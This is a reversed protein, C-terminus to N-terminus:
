KYNVLNDMLRHSDLELNSISLCTEDNYIKNSLINHSVLKNSNYTTKNEGGFPERKPSRSVGKQVGTLDLSFTTNIPNISSVNSFITPQPKPHTNGTGSIKFNNQRRVADVVREIEQMRSGLKMQRENLLGVNQSVNHMKNHMDMQLENHIVDKANHM